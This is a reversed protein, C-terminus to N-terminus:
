KMVEDRIEPYFEGKNDFYRIWDLIVGKHFLLRATVCRERNMDELMLFDNDFFYTNGHALANRVHTMMSIIANYNSDIGGAYFAVYSIRPIMNISCKQVITLADMDVFESKISQGRVIECHKEDVGAIKLLQELSIRPTGLQPPRYDAIARRQSAARSLSKTVFFDWIASEEERTFHAARISKKINL